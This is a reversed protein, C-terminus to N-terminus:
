PERATVSADEILPQAISDKGAAVALEVLQMKRRFRGRGSTPSCGGSGHNCLGKARAGCGLAEKALVYADAARALWTPTGNPAATPLSEADTGEVPQADRTGEFARLWAKTEANATPTDDLLTADLLEPLDNLLARLESQIADAIPAYEAGLASCAAVSLRQLDLWARGCPLAMAQEGAELLEGWKKTLALRKIAPSAGHAPSGPPDDRRIAIGNPARGLAPRAAHIHRRASPSANACSLCRGCRYKPWRQLATRCAREGTRNRADPRRGDGRETTGPRGRARADEERGAASKSRTQSKRASRKSCSPGHAPSGGTGTRLKGFPPAITRSSKM